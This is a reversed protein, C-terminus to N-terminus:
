RGSLAFDLSLRPLRDPAADLSYGGSPTQVGFKLAICRGIALSQSLSGSLAFTWSEGERRAALALKAGGKGVVPGMPPDWGLDLEGRLSRLAVDARVSEVAAYEDDEDDWGDDDEEETSAAASVRAFRATLGGSLAAALARNTRGGSGGRAGGGEPAALRLALVGDKLGGSDASGKARFSIAKCGAEISFTAMDVRWLWLVQDLASAGEVKLLGESGDTKFSAAVAGASLRWAGMSFSVMLDASFDRSPPEALVSLFRRSATFLGLSASSLFGTPWSASLRLASAAGPEVLSGAECSLWADAAISGGACPFAQRAAVAASLVSTAPQWAAGRRWGEGSDAGPKAALCVGADIGCGDKLKAGGEIGCFRFHDPLARDSEGSPDAIAVFRIGSAAIGFISFSEGSGDARSWLASAGSGAQASPLSRLARGAQFRGMGIYAACPESEMEAYPFEAAFNPVSVCIGAGVSRSLGKIRFDIGFKEEGCAISASVLRGSEDGAWAIAAVAIFLM